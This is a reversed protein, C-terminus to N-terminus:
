NSSPDLSTDIDSVDKIITRGKGEYDEINFIADADGYVHHKVTSPYNTFIYIISNIGIEMLSKAQRLASDYDRKVQGFLSANQKYVIVCNTKAPKFGVKSYASEAVKQGGRIISEDIKKFGNKEFYDNPFDENGM